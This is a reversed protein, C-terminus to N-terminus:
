LAEAKGTIAWVKIQKGAITVTQNGGKTPEGLSNFTFTVTNEAKAGGPLQKREGAVYYFNSGSEFDISRKQDGQDVKSMALMQVYQIDAIVQEVAAISTADSKFTGVKYLVASALIGLTVIVIILEILSFGKDKAM